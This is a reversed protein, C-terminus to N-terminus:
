LFFQQFFTRQASDTCYICMPVRMAHSNIEQIRFAQHVNSALNWSEPMSMNRFIGFDGKFYVDVFASVIPQEIKSSQHDFTFSVLDCFGFLSPFCHLQQLVSMWSSGKAVIRYNHAYNRSLSVSPSRPVFGCLCSRSSVFILQGFRWCFKGKCMVRRTALRVEFPSM